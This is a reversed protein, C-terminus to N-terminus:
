VHKITSQYQTLLKCILCFVITLIFFFLVSRLIFSSHLSGPQNYDQANKFMLMFDDYFEQPNAYTKNKIQNM